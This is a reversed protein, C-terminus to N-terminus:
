TINFLTKANFTTVECVQEVDCKKIRAIEKAILPLYSPENRKGRFPAPTLWPSDTELVINELGTQEIVKPLNSNKYTLVGGIGVKFDGYGTVRKCTEASGSFAHFVGKLTLHKLKDLSKFILGGDERSHIIVPLNMKHALILQQEFVYVQQDIFERSWYGDIGIEGIATFKNGSLSSYVFELEEEWNNKVSTPHLGTSMMTFKDFRRALDCMKGYTTSDVAPLIVNTVGAEQARKVVDDIDDEFDSDYLHTHTDIIEIMLVLNHLVKKRFM